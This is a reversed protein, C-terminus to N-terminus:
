SGAAAETSKQFRRLMPVFMMALLIMMVADVADVWGIHNYYDCVLHLVVLSVVILRFRGEVLRGLPRGERTLVAGLWAAIFIGSLGITLMAAMGFDNM